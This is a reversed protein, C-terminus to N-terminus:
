PMHCRLCWIPYPHETKWRKLTHRCRIRATIITHLRTIKKANLNKSGDSLTIKPAYTYAAPKGPRYVTEAAVISVAGEEDLSARCVSFPVTLVGKYNGKGTIKMTPADADERSAIKKNKTYSVKYDTGALLATGNCALEPEPKAGAKTYPVTLEKMAESLMTDDLQAPQLTEDVAELDGPNESEVAEDEPEKASLNESGADTDVDTDEPGKEAPEGEAEGIIGEGDTFAAYVTQEMGASTCILMGCLLAAMLRRLEKRFM